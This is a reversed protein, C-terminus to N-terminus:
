FLYGKTFNYFIKSFMFSSFPHSTKEKVYSRYFVSSGVKKDCLFTGKQSSQFLIACDPLFTLINVNHSLFIFEFLPIKSLKQM